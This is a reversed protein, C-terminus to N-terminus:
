NIVLKWSVQHAEETKEFIATTGRNKATIITDTGKIIDLRKLLMTKSLLEFDENMTHAMNCTKGPAIFFKHTQTVSDYKEDFAGNFTDPRFNPGGGVFLSDGSKMDIYNVQITDSSNNQIEATFFNSECSTFFMASLLLIFTITPKQM